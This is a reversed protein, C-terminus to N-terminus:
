NNTKQILAVFMTDAKITYGKLYEYKLVKIPLNQVAWGMNGENEAAFISCTIYVLIGGPELHMVMNTIIKRQLQCFGDIESENFFCLEEPTRAWTGSGSCPVDCIIVDHIEPVATAQQSADYIFSRYQRVNAESFRKRLNALISPRIDSVTLKISPDLDYALLSKGGSAACCDWVRLSAYQKAMAFAKAIYGSTQQSNFDQIVVEENINLFDMLSINDAFSISQDGIICHSIGAKQLKKLVGEKRGPRTRIFVDSPIFLSYNYLVFDVSNSIVQLYPFPFLSETEVKLEYKLWEMKAQIDEEIHANWSPQLKELVSSFSSSTLFVGAEIKKNWSASPLAKGVRLAAYCLNRIVKRDSSGFKKFQKFYQTLFLKFPMEGKYTELITVATLLHSPYYKM